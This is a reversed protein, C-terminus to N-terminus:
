LLGSAKWELNRLCFVHLVDTCLSSSFVASIFSYFGGYVGFGWLVSLLVRYLTSLLPLFLYSIMQQQRLINVGLSCYLVVVLLYSRCVEFQLIDRNVLWCLEIHMSLKTTVSLFPLFIHPVHRLCKKDKKSYAMTDESSVFDKAVGKYTIGLLQLM